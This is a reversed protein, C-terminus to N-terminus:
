SNLYCCWLFVSIIFYWFEGGATSWSWSHVLVSRVEDETENKFCLCAARRKFGEGDYTRTQNPKFKMMYIRFLHIGPFRGFIRPFAYIQLWGFGSSWEDSILPLLPEGTPTDEKSLGALSPSEQNMWERAVLRYWAADPRASWPPKTGSLCVWMQTRPAAVLQGSLLLLSDARGPGSEPECRWCCVFISPRGPDNTVRM